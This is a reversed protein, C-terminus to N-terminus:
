KIKLKDSTYTTEADSRMQVVREKLQESQMLSVKETKKKYTTYISKMDEITDFAQVNIESSNKDLNNISVILQLNLKKAANFYVHLNEEPVTNVLITNVKKETLYSIMEEATISTKFRMPNGDYPSNYSFEINEEIEISKLGLKKIASRALRNEGGVQQQLLLHKNNKLAEEIQEQEENVNNYVKKELATLLDASSSYFEMDSNSVILDNNPTQVAVIVQLGLQKVERITRQMDTLNIENLPVNFDLIALKDGCIIYNKAKARFDEDYAEIFNFTEFAFGYEVLQDQVKRIQGTGLKNTKLLVDSEQSLMKILEPEM